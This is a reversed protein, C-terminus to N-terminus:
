AGGINRLIKAVQGAEHPREARNKSLLRGVMVQWQGSLARFAPASLHNNSNCVADELQPYSMVTSYFPHYGTLAYYLLIGLAFLDTRHDIDRKTGMFQEPAFYIPTGFAAGDATNTLDPKDLHRVLGFDIIVPSGDPRVRINSPKLDRHVLRLKRMEELGDSLQAFFQAADQQSWPYGSQLRDTLDEGHVFEEIIHHIQRGPQSSFTYEKLRAVNPHSLSQMALIERRLRDVDYAPDIIKLCLDQGEADQIHFAAKQESPSLPKIVRYQPYLRQAVALSVTFTM